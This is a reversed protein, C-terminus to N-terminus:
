RSLSKDFDFQIRKWADYYEDPLNFPAALQVARIAQEAHRNAQNRNVATIGYQRVVRPMGALSGDQDLDWALVTVLQEADVGQPAVWKPKLQRSIAGSLAARVNPGMAQAPPSASRQTGTAGAVGELFNDGLRSGGSRRDPQSRTEARDPRPREHTEPEPRPSLHSTAAAKAPEPEPMEGFTPAVDPAADSFPDPSTSILGIEDSLTVVIREPPRVIDGPGPRYVLLALLTAHAIIATALGIREERPLATAAM